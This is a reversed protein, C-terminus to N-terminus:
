LSTEQAPLVNEVVQEVQKTSLVRIQAPFDEYGELEEYLDLYAQNLVIGDM